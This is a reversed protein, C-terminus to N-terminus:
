VSWSGRSSAIGRLAAPVVVTKAVVTGDNNAMLSSNSRESQRIKLRHRFRLQHKAISQWLTPGESEEGARNHRKHRNM